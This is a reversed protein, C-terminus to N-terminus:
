LNGWFNRDEPKVQSVNGHSFALEPNFFFSREFGVAIQLFHLHAAFFVVQFSLRLLM